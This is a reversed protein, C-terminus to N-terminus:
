DVEKPKRTLGAEAEFADWMSTMNKAIDSLPATEAEEQQLESVEKTLFDEIVKRTPDRYETTTLFYSYGFYLAEAM